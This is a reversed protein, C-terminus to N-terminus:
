VGKWYPWNEKIASYIKDCLNLRYVLFDILSNEEEITLNWEKPISKVISIIKNKDLSMKFTDVFNDFPSHGNVYNLLMHNNKKSFTPVLLLEKDTNLTESTWLLSQLFVHSHDIIYIKKSKFEFILNGDNFARDNNLIFQDFFIIKPIQETNCCQELHLPNVKPQARNIWRSGFALDCFIEGNRKDDIKSPLLEKKVRILKAEPIPLDLLCAIHYSIFENILHKRGSCDDFFKCAYINNDSAKYKMPFTTGAKINDVFQTAILEEM